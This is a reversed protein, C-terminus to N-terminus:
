RKAAVKPRVLRRGLPYARVKPVKGERIARQMGTWYDVTMLEPHTDLFARRLERDDIRLGVMMEEPLFITGEEFFWDPIDEEGDVRDTNTRVKVETLPEVADYDFLYVKRIPSVGYNRGDLDKNFVNAAANNKICTGLNQVAVRADEPSASALFVPMPIMKPQVILHRFILQDGQRAVCGPAAAVLEDVLDAAFMGADLTINYYIINDLMSGARDMYHVLRYKEIVAEVGPFTGWKYDATPQDRIVKMVYRSSPMSFGIAVTGRFGVATDLREGTRRHEREIENIVAVKGIHNFGITSYHLGLPRKPMLSFLFQALEHFNPNTVHLNALTSSFVYQLDDSETLVADVFVGDAENLLAIALPHIGHGPVALRGVLYCGRNRYFGANVMVLKLESGETAGRALAALTIREAVLAADEEQDRWRATLGPVALMERVTEATVPVTAAITVLTPVDLIGRRVMGKPPSYQVPKWLDSYLKRRVSNIFAFALDAEYRSAILEDYYREIESWFTEDERLEPAGAELVPLARDISITYISLRDRSLRFTSPWDRREFALKADFPIRRSRSYYDNFVALIIKAILRAREERGRVAYLESLAANNIVETSLARRPLPYELSM